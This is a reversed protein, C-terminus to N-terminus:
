RHSTDTHIDFHKQFNPYTLIEDRSMAKIMGEFAEQEVETWKFPVKNSTLRTLPDLM